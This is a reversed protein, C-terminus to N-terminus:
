VCSHIPLKTRAKSNQDSLLPKRLVAIL